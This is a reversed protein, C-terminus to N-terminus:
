HIKVNIVKTGAILDHVCRKNKRFVLLSDLLVFLGGVIPINSVVAIPLYRLFVVKSLPLINDTNVSVIKTGVLKKGISQGNKALLYGHIIFFLVFALAAILITHSVQVAGSMAKEWYGSYFMIPFIIIISIVGDILSGFLRAWRSALSHNENKPEEGKSSDNNM